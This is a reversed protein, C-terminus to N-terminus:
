GEVKLGLGLGEVRLGVDEVLIRGRDERYIGVGSGLGEIVGGVGCGAGYVRCRVGQVRCM